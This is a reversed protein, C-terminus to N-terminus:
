RLQIGWGGAFASLNAVQVNRGPRPAEIVKGGGIYIGIHDAGDNRSSNDLAVLDGAQLQDFDIRKGQRAQAASIRPLDFGNANYILQVLGSCDVGSYSTGGWVYPTGLMKKAAAVVQGRWGGVDTGGANFSGDENRKVGYTDLEPMRLDDMFNSQQANEFTLEGLGQEQSDFTTEGLGVEEGDAEGLPREIPPIVRAPLDKLLEDPGPVSGLTGDPVSRM